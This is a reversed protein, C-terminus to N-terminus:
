KMRPPTKARASSTRENFDTMTVANQRPKVYGDSLTKLFAVIDNEEAETLGLNGLQGKQGDPNILTDPSPYEPPPWIPKGKLSSYPSPSTFDIVEGNLMTLNRTNYFHVIDKLSKFVGNHMYAKIFTSHPRKDVNRLTPVKFMGNVFLFDGQGNSRPGTNGPPLGKAPYLYDGLGFDIYGSGLPNCGLPNIDKNTQFYYPNRPNKPVGINTYCYQTWLDPGTAPDLQIGHCAACQASKHLPGGARGNRLGTALELGNLESPTLKEKGAVFADYKSSFPSVESSSEFAAVAEALLSFVKDTPEASVNGGFVQQCLKAYPGTCVKKVVLHPARVNDIINNMENPHFVPFHMQSKLDRARGDRFLGGVYSQLNNDFVPPGSPCFKVYTITPPNRNEYRGPVVGVGVGLSANIASDMSGAYGAEPNHCNACALGPPNSLRKDFFIAKGLQEMPTLSSSIDQLQTPAQSSPKSEVEAALGFTGNKVFLREGISLSAIFGLLALFAMGRRM